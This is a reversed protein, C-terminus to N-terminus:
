HFISKMRIVPKKIIFILIYIDICEDSWIRNVRTGLTLVHNTMLVPVLHWNECVIRYYLQTM